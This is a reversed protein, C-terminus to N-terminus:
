VTPHGFAEILRETAEKWRRKVTRNCCGVARAVDAVTAGLYFRMSFVERLEAPLQDVEHHFRTMHDLQTPSEIDAVAADLPSIRRTDQVAADDVRHRDPSRPGGFKRALDIVQRRVQMAALAMLHRESEPNVQQLARWLRESALSFIDLTDHCGRRIEPHLRLLRRALKLMRGHCAVQLRDTAEPEGRRHAALAAALNTELPEGNDEDRDVAM